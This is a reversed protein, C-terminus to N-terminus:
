WWVRMWHEGAQQVHEAADEFSTSMGMFQDEIDEDADVFVWCGAEIDGPSVMVLPSWFEEERIVEHAWQKLLVADHAETLEFPTLGIM